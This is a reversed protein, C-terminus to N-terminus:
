RPDRGTLMKCLIEDSVHPEMLEVLRGIIQTLTEVKRELVEIHGQGPDNGTDRVRAAALEGWTEYENGYEDVIM